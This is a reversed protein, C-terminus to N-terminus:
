RTIEQARKWTRYHRTCFCSICTSCRFCWFIGTTRKWLHCCTSKSWRANSWVDCSRYRCAGRSHLIQLFLPSLIFFSPLICSAWEGELQTKSYYADWPKQNHCFTRWSPMYHRRVAMVDENQTEPIQAVPYQPTHQAAPDTYFYKAPLPPADNTYSVSLESPGSPVFAGTDSYNNGSPYPPQQYIPIERHLAMELDQTYREMFTRRQSIQIALAQIDAALKVMLTSVPSTQPELDCMLRAVDHAQETSLKQVLPVARQFRRLLPLLTSPCTSISLSFAPNTASAPVDVAPPNSVTKWASSGTM